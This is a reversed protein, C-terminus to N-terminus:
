CSIVKQNRIIHFFNFGVCKTRQCNPKKDNGASNMQAGSPKPLLPRECENPILIIFQVIKSHEIM